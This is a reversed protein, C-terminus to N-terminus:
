GNWLRCVKGRLANHCHRKRGSVAEYVEVLRRSCAEISFKSAVREQAAAGLRKRLATDGILRAVGNTIAGVDGPQCLIGTVGDEVVDPVGGVATAVVPLGAAGSELLVRPVAETSSCSVVIDVTDFVDGVSAVYGAFVLADRRGTSAVQRRLEPLMAGTGVLVFRATLFRACLETAMKVFVQPQKEQSLRGVQAILVAARSVGWRERFDNGDRPVAIPDVGVPAIHVAGSSVGGAVVRRKYEPCFVVVADMRKCCQLELWEYFREIPTRSCWGHVTTMLGADYTNALLITLDCKYDHSHIIDPAESRFVGTLERALAWPLRSAVPVQYLRIGSQALSHAFSPAIEGARTEVVALAVVEIGQM